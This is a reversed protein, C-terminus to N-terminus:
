TKVMELSCSTSVINFGLIGEEKKKINKSINYKREICMDVYNLHLGGNDKLQYPLFKSLNSQSKNFIVGM